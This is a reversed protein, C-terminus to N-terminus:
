HSVMGLRDFSVVKLSRSHGRVWIELDRCKRFDFKPFVPWRLSLSVIACSSVIGIMHYLIMNPSSSQERFANCPNTLMLQAEQLKITNTSFLYITHQKKKVKCIKCNVCVTLFTCYNNHKDCSVSKV